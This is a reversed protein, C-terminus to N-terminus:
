ARRFERVRRVREYASGLEAIAVMLDERGEGDFHDDLDWTVYNLFDAGEELAEALWDVGTRLRWGAKNARAQAHDIFPQEDYWAARCAEHGTMRELDSDRARYVDPMM